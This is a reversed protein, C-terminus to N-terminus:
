APSSEREMDPRKIALPTIDLAEAIRALIHNPLHREGRELATMYSPSIGIEIALTARTHGYRERFARITQGTQEDDPRQTTTM